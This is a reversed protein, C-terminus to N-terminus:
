QRTKVHASKDAAPKWQEVVDRAGTIGGFQGLKKGGGDRFEFRGNEDTLAFQSNSLNGSVAVDIWVRAKDIPTGYENIVAGSIQGLLHRNAVGEAQETIRARSIGAEPPVGTDSDGHIFPVSAAVMVLLISRLPAGVVTQM